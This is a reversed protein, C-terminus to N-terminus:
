IAGDSNNNNIMNRKKKGLRSRSVVKLKILVYNGEDIKMLKRVEEPITVRGGRIVEAIFPLEEDMTVEARPMRLFDAEV